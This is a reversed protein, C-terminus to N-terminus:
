TPMPHSASRQRLELAALLDPKEECFIYRTFPTSVQLALVPSGKLVTATGQIRCYGASAYLDIYVRHRWKNKMSSAFLEDYLAILRYKTEAWRRVDPCILGDDEVRLNQATNEIVPSNYPACEVLDAPCEITLLGLSLFDGRATLEM